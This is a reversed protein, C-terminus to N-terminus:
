QHSLRCDSVTNIEGIKQGTMNMRSILQTIKGVLFVGDLSFEGRVKGISITGKDGYMVLSYSQNMGLKKGNALWYSAGNQSLVGRQNSVSESKVAGMYSAGFQEAQILACGKQTFTMETPTQSANLAQEGVLSKVDCVGKWTGSVNFCSTTQDGLSQMDAQLQKLDFAGPNPAPEAQAHISWLSAFGLILMMSKM